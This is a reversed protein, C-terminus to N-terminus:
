GGDAHLMLSLIPIIITPTISIPNIARSIDQSSQLDGRYGCDNLLFRVPEVENNSLAVM